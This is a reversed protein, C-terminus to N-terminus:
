RVKKYLKGHSQNSRKKNKIEKNLITLKNAKTQNALLIEVKVLALSKNFLSIIIIVIAQCKAFM